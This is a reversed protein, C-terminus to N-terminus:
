IIFLFKNAPWREGGSRTLTHLCGCVGKNKNKNKEKYQRLGFSIVILHFLSVEEETREQSLSTNKSLQIEAATAIKMQIWRTLVSCVM